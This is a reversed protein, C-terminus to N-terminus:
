NSLLDFNKISPMKEEDEDEEEDDEKKKVQGGGGGGGGGGKGPRDLIRLSDYHWV